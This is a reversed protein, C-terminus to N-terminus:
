FFLQPMGQLEELLSEGASDKAPPEDVFVRMAMNKFVDNGLVSLFKEKDDEISMDKLLRYYKRTPGEGM